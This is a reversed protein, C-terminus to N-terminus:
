GMTIQYYNLRNFRKVDPKVFNDAIAATTQDDHRDAMALAHERRRHLTALGGLMLGALAVVIMLRRVTFRPRRIMM